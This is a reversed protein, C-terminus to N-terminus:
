YNKQRQGPERFLWHSYTQLICGPGYKTSRRQQLIEKNLQVVLAARINTEASPLFKGAACSRVAPIAQVIKRLLTKQGAHNLNCIVVVRWWSDKNVFTLQAVLVRCKHWQPQLIDRMLM